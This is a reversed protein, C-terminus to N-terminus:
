RKDVNLRRPPLTAVVRECRPHFGAPFTPRGEIEGKRREGRAAPHEKRKKNKKKKKESRMPSRIAPTSFHLLDQKLYARSGVRSVGRFIKDAARLQDPILGRCIIPNSRM